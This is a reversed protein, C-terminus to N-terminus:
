LRIQIELRRNVALSQDDNGDRVPQNASKGAAILNEAKLGQEILYSVVKSARASSLEWNTPYRNVLDSVIPRADAHGIVIIDAAEFQQLTSALKTLISEASIAFDLETNIFVKELPISVSTMGASTQTVSIDPFEATLASSLASPLESDIEQSNQNLAAKLARQQNQITINAQQLQITQTVSQQDLEAIRQKAKSLESKTQNATLITQQQEAKLTELAGRLQSVIDALENQQGGLADMRESQATERLRNSNVQNELESIKREQETIVAEANTQDLFLLLNAFLSIALFTGSFIIIQTSNFRSM